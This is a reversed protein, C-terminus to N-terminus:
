PGTNAASTLKAVADQHFKLDGSSLLKKKLSDQFVDFALKRKDNLLREQIATKKSAFEAENPPERSAFQFVVPFGQVTVPGGVSGAAMSFVKPGLDKVPGLSPISGDRTVAPSTKVTLGLSKAAKKLDKTDQQELAKALENAKAMAKAKIQENIFDNKVQEKVEALGAPHAPFIDLLVPIVYGEAVEFAPGAHNKELGFVEQMFGAAAGIHPLVDIQAFPPPALVEAHYKEAIAGMDSPAKALAQSAQEAADAVVKKSKEEILLPDLVGKAEEMTQLHAQDHSISKIIHIGYMTQVLDSLAGPSLNFAANEFEPVTQKRTINPLLGGIVGTQKDDSYQKAMATFDAGSKLKKLVDQAKTKAKELDAPNKPDAKFLIHQVTVREPVRYTELHDQYYKKRDADSITVGEKLKLRNLLLIKASRKEPVQYRDKNTKFYEELASDSPNIEKKFDNPNLAVYDVVMKEGEALFTKHVDEPAVTMSDTVFLRLKDLLMAQRYREEFQGVSMGFREAVVDEYQQQGIFGGNPFLNPDRRLQSLLESEEVKLGLRDAEKLSAKELVLENLIQNAYFPMMEPPIKNRQSVQQISQQVEFETIKDGAVEAVVPNATDGIDGTLGPILTIAMSVVVLFLIVGFVVKVLTQRQRFINLM